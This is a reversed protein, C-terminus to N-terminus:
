ARDLMKVRPKPVARYRGQLYLKQLLDTKRPKFDSLPILKSGKMDVNDVLWIQDRHIADSSLLASDHTTFVIQAKTESDSPDTFMAVFRELLLPHLSQDLEDIVVVLDGKISQVFPAAYRYILQTGDSEEELDLEYEKRGPVKHKFTISYDTKPLSTELLKARFEDNFVSLFEQDDIEKSEVHISKVTPDASQILEMLRSSDENEDLLFESTVLEALHSSHAIVRLRSTIWRHAPVLEKSNLQIATSLFLANSRTADAWTKTLKKSSFFPSFHWDYDENERSRSFVERIRGKTTKAHLWEELICESDLLIGYTYHVDEEIFSVEFLTPEVKGRQEIAKCSPLSSLIAGSDDKASKRVLHQFFSMANIFSSKGSANAGYIAAARLACPFQSFGTKIARHGEKTERYRGGNMSLTAESSFSRFNSVTFNLLV